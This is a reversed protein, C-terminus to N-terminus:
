NLLFQCANLQKFHMHCSFYNSYLFPNKFIVFLVFHDYRNHQQWSLVKAVPGTKILVSIGLKRRLWPGNVKDLRIILTLVIHYGHGNWAWGETRLKLPNLIPINPKQCFSVPALLTEIAVFSNTNNPKKQSMCKKTGLQFFVAEINGSINKIQHKVRKTACRLLSTM